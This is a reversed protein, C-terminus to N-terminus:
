ALRHLLQTLSEILQPLNAAIINAVLNAPIDQLIRRIAELSARIINLKPRPSKLQSEVTAIEAETEAKREEDIPLGALYTRLVALFERIERATSASSMTIASDLTGQQIASNTIQQANIIYQVVNAPFHETPQEPRTFTAEIEVIGAHSITIGDKALRSVLGEESLYRVIQETEIPTFGLENGLDDASVLCISSPSEAKTAYYDNVTDYLHKLFLFRRSQRVKIESM